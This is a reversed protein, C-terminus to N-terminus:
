SVGLVHLNVLFFPIHEDNNSKTKIKLYLPETSVGGYASVHCPSQLAETKIFQPNKSVNWLNM